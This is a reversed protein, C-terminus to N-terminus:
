KAEKKVPCSCDPSHVMFHERVVSDEDLMCKVNFYLYEHGNFEYCKVITGDKCQTMKLQLGRIDRGDTNVAETKEAETEHCKSARYMPLAFLLFVLMIAFVMMMAMIKLVTKDNNM